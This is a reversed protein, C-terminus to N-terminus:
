LNNIGFKIGYPLCVPVARGQRTAPKFRYDLGISVAARDLRPYGSTAAVEVSDVAGTASICIRITTRGTEKALFSERPYRDPGHPRTIPRPMTMAGSPIEPPPQAGAKDDSDQQKSFDQIPAQPPDVPDAITIEPVVLTLPASQRIVVLVPPPPTERPKELSLLRTQLISSQYRAGSRAIGNALVWIALVHLVVIAMFAVARRSRYGSDVSHRLGTTM